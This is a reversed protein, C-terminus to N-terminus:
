SRAAASAVGRAPELELHRTLGDVVERADRGAGHVLMSAVSAQFPIGLFFLGPVSSAGHDLAPWGDADTVSPRIWRYDPRFGTCWVVAAVDLLTGDELVPRGDRVDVVRVPHHEVDAALLDPIRHRVLPAVGHGLRFTRRLRRGVPTRISMVHVEAWAILPAILLGRRTEISFPLQGHPRGALHTRRGSQALEWAIDSGSHGLGVVLVPGGPLQSPRRYEFAHLQVIGPDLDPAFSPVSPHRFAGSAVVVSRTHLAGSRATVRFGTVDDPSTADSGDAGLGQVTKVREGTRVELPLQAAYAELYDGMERGTPFTNRPAPFPMGPLGDYQSPSYLKLSDWRERWGDGVRAHEELIVADIGRQALEHAAALGSQGGGIIVVARQEAQDM